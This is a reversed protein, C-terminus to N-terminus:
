GPEGGPAPAATEPRAVFVPVIRREAFRWRGDAGREYTDLCDAVLFPRPVGMGPGDARYLTLVVTARARDSGEAEVRVNTHLHRTVHTQRARAAFGATLEARGRLTALPSVFAAGETFLSVAQDAQGHDLLYAFEALLAEIASRLAATSEIM